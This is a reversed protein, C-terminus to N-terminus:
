TSGPKTVSFVKLFGTLNIKLTTAVNLDIIILLFVVIIRFWALSLEIFADQDRTQCFV